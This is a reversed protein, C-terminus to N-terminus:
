RSAANPVVAVNSSTAPANGGAVYATKGDSSLAFGTVNVLNLPIPTGATKTAIDVPTLTNNAVISQDVTLVFDTKGDPSLAQGSGITTATPAPLPITAGVTGTAIDVPVLGNVKSSATFLTSGDPSVLPQGYLNGAITTANV